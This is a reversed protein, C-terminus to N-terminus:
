RRTMATHRIDSGKSGSHANRIASLVNFMGIYAIAPISPNPLISFSQWHNLAAQRIGIAVFTSLQTSAKRKVNVCFSSTAMLTQRPM